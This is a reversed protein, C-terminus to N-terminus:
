WVDLLCYLPGYGYAAADIISRPQEIFLSVVKIVKDRMLSCLFLKLFINVLKSQVCLLYAFSCFPFFTALIIKMDEKQFM